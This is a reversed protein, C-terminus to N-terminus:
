AFMVGLILITGVLVLAVSIAVVKIRWARELEENLWDQTYKAYEAENRKRQRDERIYDSM